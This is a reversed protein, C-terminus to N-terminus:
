DANFRFHYLAMAAAQAVNFSEKRGSMPIELIHPCQRLVDEELGDVENGFILAAKPPVRFSDLMTSGPAQELACVTFNEAKLRRIVADIDALFEWDLSKQAGLATKEIKKSLQAAIHPLRVDNKAAPYPTYGSLFLKKIGLGECTRMLSGVNHCSRLNHAVAIIQRSM